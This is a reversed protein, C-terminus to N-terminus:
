YHMACIRLLVEAADGFGSNLPLLHISHNSNQQSKYLGGSHHFLMAVNNKKRVATCSNKEMVNTRCAIKKRGILAQLFNKKLIM